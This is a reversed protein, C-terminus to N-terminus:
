VAEEAKVQTKLINNEYLDSIPFCLEFDNWDIDGDVITFKKFEEVNRYKIIQPHSSSMLFDQFDVTGEKEDSFTFKIKFRDLYVAELIRLVETM